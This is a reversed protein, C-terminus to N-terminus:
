NIKPGRWRVRGTPDCLVMVPARDRFAKLSKIRTRVSNPVEKPARSEEVPLFEADVATKTPSFSVTRFIRREPSRAKPDVTMEVLDDRRLTFLPRGGELRWRERFGQTNADLTSVVELDRDGEDNIFYILRDNGGTANARQPKSDHRAPGKLIRLSM